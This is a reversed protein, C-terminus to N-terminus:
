YWTGPKLPIVVNCVNNLNFSKYEHITTKRKSKESPDGPFLGYAIGPSIM